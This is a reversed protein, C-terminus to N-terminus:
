SKQYVKYTLTTNDVKESKNSICCFTDPIDPFYTDCEYFEDIETIHIEYVPYNDIVEKYVNSGGIIWVEDYKNAVCQKFVKEISDLYIENKFATMVEPQRTLIFSKRNPLPKSPLSEWTNKGMVIANNGNGKTLKSFHKLDSPFYWPITGKYGIGRQQTEMAVIINLKM